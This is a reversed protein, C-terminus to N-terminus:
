QFNRDFATLQLPYDVDYYTSGDGDNYAYKYGTHHTFSGLMTGDPLNNQIPLVYISGMMGMEMHETAEVHCHYFYTGPEVIEYYYRYTHGMNISVSAMPEGDFIPAANPFGHFHVTHPDFLDPRMMMGVNSLDLYFRQGEKLVITPGSAEGKVMSSMAVMSFIQTYQGMSAMMETMETRNAFGFTYLVNGDGMKAFGDGASLHFYYYDNSVNGDGDTDIGDNDVPLTKFPPPAPAGPLTSGGGTPADGSAPPGAMTVVPLIANTPALTSYEDAGIDASGPDPFPRVQVDFDRSLGTITTALAEDIAPSNTTIHYDGYSGTPEFRLGINNGAEDVVAVAFLINTYGNLFLPDSSQNSPDYGTADTLLCNTPSLKLLPNNAVTLDAYVPTLADPVLKQTTSDFYFSRNHWIINNLLEPNSFTQGSGSVLDASLPYSVIGAGQPSSNLEGPPFASRATASSDNNAITNHIIRTRVADGLSIGGAAWGAVNDVIINNLIDIAYWDSVSGSAIVDDGNAGSVCIGGGKGSGSLNGQILNNYITVSGSGTGLGGAAAAAVIEGGIFIGGGDGGVAVGYFVENNRITNNAILGGPSVGQHCIGGGNGRSFNGLIQNDLIRYGTAGNFITIGGGGLVGGNKIIQNGFITVNTNDYLTATNAVLGFTIGGGYSGQNGSIRNNSIRLNHALNFIEIGGGALSGVLRFGDIRSPTNAFDTDNLGFVTFGANEGAVFPDYGLVDLVKSHWISLRSAPTPNANIITGAGAGQMRLPKYVIPNENYTGPGVLILDGPSAADIAEQIPDPIPDSSSPARPVVQHVAGSGGYTLTIGIPTILGSDGRTIMLRGETGSPISGPLTAKIFTPRWVIINLPTGDVTVTGPVIGFGYDRTVVNESGYPLTPDPVSTFGMSRIYITESNTTVYPGVFHATANSVYNIVPTLNPPEVDIQKNPYGVFGAVPVIPTDAYLFTGPYYHLTWPTTSFNPNYFPDPIRKLGTPDDPDAMTPDNLVITLMNPAVGSPSPVNVTYTSPVLANYAGYEDCYVHAVEHGAWDWISIPLWGPAGKEGYIPSKSDFEATLDNLVFGVVRTAKPVETYMNFDAATNKGGAVSVWKRDALPRMQGAFPAPVQQDPFLSLYPPVIHLPAGNNTTGVCEPALVLKSPRYEDGFVVNQSEEKQIEYGPPPVAQVIYMSPPLGEVENTTNAMGGPFYSVIAYGGDFVGPRVQNWTSYNDSGIIPKGQIVPPNLQMSGTPKNDDWSDCWVVNLADGPDFIGNNNYDVDEPGKPGSGDAWGLPYNDVDAITVGPNGDLDDIIKDGNADAYLVIQVRPIGPEWPEGVANRPDEEARTTSYFVIGAIGGNEGAPYNVKGWDIRNNQNLFLHMAETLIPGTETHSLNNGTNPNIVPIPDGLGNTLIVSSVPDFEYQAQPNRAGESPMDWGDDEPIFGGDDVVATMGTPKFRAFDVEAVLWKFFPFVESMQYDGSIDTVTAMYVTGDRWRINVAQDSIGPEGPDRFGDEDADYFVSGELTGFWRYSLVNGLDMIGTTTNTVTIPNFGFLADLPKDWTVLEYNGPPVNSIAFSGDSNCPAAYLGRGAVNGAVIENLGVWAEAVPPGVAFLQNHPPRGFHNFRNVGKIIVNESATPPPNTGWVTQLPDIFGFFVHYFGPGFGETFLPPENASVWADVTLTGEITATQHWAGNVNAGGHRGVWASGTPPVAQVGYKGMALFKILAKGNADTYIFGDGMQDVVYAGDGDTVYDGLANTLYTSGLANGFIDQMIPGGAFDALTIQFGGLGQENADPANNISNNDNFVLVSIQASPLPNSNLVVLANTQGIAITTGGVSHGSAMVSIVYRNSIDPLIINLPNNTSSGNAAVPAHSEHIVLSISNNTAVGPVTVTTTDVELLWRFNTLTIGDSDVVHLKLAASSNLSVLFMGAICIFLLIWPKSKHPTSFLASM